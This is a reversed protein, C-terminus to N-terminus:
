NLSVKDRDDIILLWDKGADSHPPDFSKEGKNRFKEGKKCEGNAPNFWWFRLDSSMMELNLKVSQGVSLYAMVFSHDKAYAVRVHMSDEPNSGVVLGQDPVLKDFSRLTLIERLHRMDESGESNLAKQWGQLCPISFGEDGEEFMQWIANNGYTYGAAGSLFNWYAHVRIDHANFFGEKFYSKDGITNDSTLVHQPVRKPDNWHLYNWFQVPIGEYPPEADVFPKRPELQRLVDAYQYVNLFKQSHGSQYMDFDIWPEHPLLEHSSSGGRPHYSMLHKGGDGVRIGRAMAEWVKLENANHINRDGGLIWVIPKNKYREGLFRGYVYANQTNFIVPEGGNAPTVKDGWTPLMGVFLGLEEAENVIFDVHKFYAENPNEPNLDHLPVEGYANPIQLGGMEALVVAQIVSFGKNARDKLYLQADERNLKHFLEWATDGIWLFSEGDPKQFFKQNSSVQLSQNYTEPEPKLMLSEMLGAMNEPDEILKLFSQNTEEVDTWRNNGEEDIENYGGREKEWYQGLGGHVAYLVATQDFTSNDQIKGKFTEKMWPAYESFHKFGLYLPSQKSLDNFVAGSKIAEGIEYGLFVVPMDINDFVYRTVGKMEGWFNWEKEGAPYQGGMVVMEKIKKHFLEKGTLDSHADPQSELLLKINMLSGVTVLTVSIDEQASLIKRYLSTVDPVDDNELEWPLQDAITKNYNWESYYPDGPRIGIPVNPYGYYRNVADVAPVVYKETSWIMVGLLDAEGTQQFGHLMALAGLDDADAGFDTDFLIKVQSHVSTAILLFLVAFLKFRKM